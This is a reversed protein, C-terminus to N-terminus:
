GRGEGDERDTHIEQTVVSALGSPNDAAVYKENFENENTNTKQVLGKAQPPM